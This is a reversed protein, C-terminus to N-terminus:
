THPTPPREVRRQLHSHLLGRAGCSIHLCSNEGGGARVLVAANARQQPQPGCYLYLRKGRQEAEQPRSTALTHTLVMFVCRLKLVM